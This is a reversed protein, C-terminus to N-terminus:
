QGDNPLNNKLCIRFLFIHCVQISSVLFCSCYFQPFKKLKQLLRRRQRWRPDWAKNEEWVVLMIQSEPCSPSCLRENLSQQSQTCTTRLLWQLLLLVFTYTHRHTQKTLKINTNCCYSIHEYFFLLKLMTATLTWWWVIHTCIETKVFM